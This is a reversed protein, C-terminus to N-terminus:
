NFQFTEGEKTITTKFPLNERPVQQIMEALVKSGTFLVHKEGKFEIQLCLCRDSNSNQFKSKDLKFDHVVLAQNLVKMIKIKDGVFRGRKPKINFDSFSRM